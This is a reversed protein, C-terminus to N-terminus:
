VKASNKKESAQARARRQQELADALGEIWVRGCWRALLGGILAAVSAHWFVTSAACEAALSSGAGVVFGTIAGLIMLSKM